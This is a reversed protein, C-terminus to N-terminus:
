LLWDVTAIELAQDSPMPIVAWNDLVWQVRLAEDEMPLAFDDDSIV